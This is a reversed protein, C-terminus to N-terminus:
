ALNSQGESRNQHTRTRNTMFPEYTRCTGADTLRVIEEVNKYFDFRSSVNHSQSFPKLVLMEFCKEFTKKLIESPSQRSSIVLSGAKQM